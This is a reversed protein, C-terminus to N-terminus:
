FPGGPGGMPNGSRNANTNTRTSAASGSASMGTQNTGIVVAEGPQLGKVIESNQGDNLGVEVYKVVPQGASLIVIPKLDTSKASSATGAGTGNNEEAKAGSSGGVPAPNQGSTKPNTGAAQPNNRVYSEGYTLAMMPVTLVENKRAKILSVAASMGPHLLRDPDDASLIVKYFQVNSVTTSEASIKLVEGNFVTGSYATSTFEAKQGVKIRGIDVENVLASVQLDDSIVTIFANVGSGDGGGSRQGVDGNIQSVIGAFSAILKTATLDNQVVELKAKSNELQAQASALDLESNRYDDQAQDLDDQAIIGAALLEQQQKLTKQAKDRTIVLKQIQTENQAIDREAQNLEAYLNQSDQEALLQGTEVRDGEQINLTKIEGVNKFSLEVKRVPELTGTAQVLDTITGNTVPITLYTLDESQNFWKQYAFYGGSCLVILGAVLWFIRSSSGTFKILRSGLTKIKQFM